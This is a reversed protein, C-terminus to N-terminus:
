EEALLGRREASGGDVWMAARLRASWRSMALGACSSGPPNRRKAMAGVASPPTAIVIGEGAAPPLRLSLAAAAAMTPWRAPWWPSCTDSSDLLRGLWGTM